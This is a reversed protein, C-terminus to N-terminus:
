FIWRDTLFVVEIYKWIIWRDTLLVESWKMCWGWRADDEDCMMWMVCRGWWADDEDHMMRMVCWGWWVDDEDHMMRMMCWGWWGDDENDVDDLRVLYSYLQELVYLLIRYDLQYLAWYLVTFKSPWLNSEGCNRM